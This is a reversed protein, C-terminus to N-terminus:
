EGYFELSYRGQNDPAGIWNLNEKMSQPMANGPIIWGKVGWRNFAPGLMLKIDSQLSDSQSVADVVVAGKECSVNGKVTGFDLNGMPTILEGPWKVNASLEDCLPTTVSYNALDIEVPGKVEIPFSSPVFSQIFSADTKMLMDRAYAGSFSYGVAGNASVEPQGLLALDFEVKGILLSLTSFDWHLQGFSRGRVVVSQASGRWLSGRLDSISFQNNDPLFTSFLTAPIHILASVFFILVFLSIVMTKSRM